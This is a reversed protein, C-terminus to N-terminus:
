RVLTVTGSRENGDHLRLIFVYVGEPAAKGDQDRGDWGLAPQPTEFVQVGWRNFIQLQELCDPNNTEPQWLDNVGDNNPSFVNPVRLHALKGQGFRLLTDAIYTCGDADQLVLRVPVTSNPQFDLQLEPNLLVEGDIEWFWSAAPGTGASQLLVRNSCASTSVGVAPRVPAAVPVTLTTEHFCANPLASARLRMTYTGGEPFNRDLTPGTGVQQGDLFWTFHNALPMNATFRWTRTCALRAWSFDGV